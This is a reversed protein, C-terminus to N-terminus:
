VYDQVERAMAIGDEIASSAAWTVGAMFLVAWHVPTIQLHTWFPQDDFEGMAWRIVGSLAIASIAALCAYTSFWRLSRVTKSTLADGRHIRRFMEFLHWLSQLALVSPVLAAILGIIRREPLPAASAIVVTNGGLRDIGLGWFMLFFAIIALGLIPIALIFTMTVLRTWPMRSM